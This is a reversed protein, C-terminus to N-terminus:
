AVVSPSRAAMTSRAERSIDSSRRAASSAGFAVSEVSQACLDAVEELADQVPHGLPHNSRRAAEEVLTVDGLLSRLLADRNHQNLFNFSVTISAELAIVQHWWGHPMVLTEGAELVGEYVPVDALRARDHASSLDFEEDELRESFEPSVLYCAKRGCIQALWASTYDTHLTSVTGRPGLLLWRGVPSGDMVTLLHRLPASLAQFWNFVCYPDTIDQLLEPHRDFPQLGYTYLMSECPILSLRSAEPRLVYDIYEALLVPVRVSPSDIHDQVEIFEHGYRERFMEFTWRKAGQAELADILILPEGPSSLARGM